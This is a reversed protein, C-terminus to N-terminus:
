YGSFPQSYGAIEPRKGYNIVEQEGWETVKEDLAKFEDKLQKFEDMLQKLDAQKAFHEVEDDNGKKGKFDPEGQSNMKELLSRIVKLDDTKTDAKDAQCGTLECAVPESFLNEKRHETNFKMMGTGISAPSDTVGLGMLYARGTEAFSPNMEISTHIKEGGQVLSVLDPHPKLKVFLALRGKLQGTTIREAKAEAVDGLAKFLGGPMLGRIHEPWIRANYLDPAYDAAMEEIQQESIERGDVTKGAVAARIWNTLLETM